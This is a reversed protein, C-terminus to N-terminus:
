PKSSDKPFRYWRSVSSSGSFTSSGVSGANLSRKPGRPTSCEHAVSMSSSVTSGRKPLTPRCRMVSVPCSVRSRIFRTSSSNTAAPKVDM